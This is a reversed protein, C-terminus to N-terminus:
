LLRAKKKFNSKTKSVLISVDRNEEFEDEDVELQLADEVIDAAELGTKVSTEQKNGVEDTENLNQNSESNIISEYYDPGDNSESADSDRDAEKREKQTMEIYM